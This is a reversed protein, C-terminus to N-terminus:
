YDMRIQRAKRLVIHLHLGSIFAQHDLSFAPALVSRLLAAPTMRFSYIPAEIPQDRQRLAGLEFLCLCIESIAYQFYNDRHRFQLPLVLLNRHAGRVLRENRLLARESFSTGPAGSRPTLLLAARRVARSYKRSSPGPM